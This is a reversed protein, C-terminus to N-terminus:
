RNGAGQRSLGERRYVVGAKVVFRVLNGGFHYPVYRHNPAELVLIDAAKGPELSGASGQRRVACAANITAACLAEAPTMKLRVCALTLIMQMSHTMSSGPNFDTALAVAVGGEILARAPAERDRDLFFTSGPLLVAVVGADRMADIGAADVAELHDASVAGMEAALRAGGFASFQDAHIRIGLGAASAASLVKRAEEVTFAGRDCFVDCFEALGRSAVEPIMRGAVLDVYEGRNAAYEPPVQHAGLFTPVVSVASESKLNRLVELSKLEDELSLGYGSKAEITTTGYELFLRLRAAAAAELDEMRAARLRKMSSLIGGGAAAIQEYTRGQSRMEFEDERSGAFVPHTHPDVFGPMVVCGAADMESGSSYAAAVEADPGAAAIRGGVVAVSGGPVIGVDSMKRGLRPAAGGAMTVLESAGRIILDAKM